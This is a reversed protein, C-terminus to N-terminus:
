VIEETENLTSLINMQEIGCANRAISYALASEQKLQAVLEIHVGRLKHRRISNRLKLFTFIGYSFRRFYQLQHIFFESM